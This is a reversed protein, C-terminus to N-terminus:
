EIIKFVYAVLLLQQLLLIVLGVPFYLKQTKHRFYLVGLLVGLASFFLALFFFYVEPVRSANIRSKHKDFGVLLFGLVNIIAFLIGSFILVKM